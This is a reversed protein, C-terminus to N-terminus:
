TAGYTNSCLSCLKGVGLLTTYNTPIILPCSLLFFFFCTIKKKTSVGKAAIVALLRRPDSAVLVTWRFRPSWCAHDEWAPCHSVTSLCKLNRCLHKILISLIPFKLIINILDLCLMNWATQLQLSDVIAALQGPPVGNLWLSSQM